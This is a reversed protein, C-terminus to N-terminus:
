FSSFLVIGDVNTCFILLSLNFWMLNKFKEMVKEFRPKDLKYFLKELLYFLFGFALVILLSTITRWFNVLFSSHLQYKSFNEPLEYSNFKEKLSKPM